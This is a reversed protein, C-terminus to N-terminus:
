RSAYVVTNDLYHGRARDFTGSCTILRLTAATTAGYVAATPFASKAYSAVRKVTFRVRSGDTREVAVADGPRLDRLRYFVAPATASDVHGAIVSPGREGPRSGGTWWGALMPDTPVELAGSADLGLAVLQTNVDIAPIMIRVPRAPRHAPRNPRRARPLQEASIRRPAEGGVAAVHATFALLITVLALLFGCVVLALGLVTLHRRLRM